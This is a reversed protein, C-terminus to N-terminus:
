YDLEPHHERVFSDWDFDKVSYSGDYTAALKNSVMYAGWDVGDIFLDTHFRGFSMTGDLDIKTKATLVKLETHMIKMLKDHLRKELVTARRKEPCNVGRVRFKAGSLIEKFRGAGVVDATFTDGDYISKINVKIFEM